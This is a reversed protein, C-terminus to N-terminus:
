WALGMFLSPNQVAPFILLLGTILITALALWYWRVQWREKLLWYGGYVVQFAGALLVMILKLVFSGPFFWYFLFVPPYFPFFAGTLCVIGHAILLGSLLYIM